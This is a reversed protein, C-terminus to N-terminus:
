WYHRHHHRHHRHHWRHWSRHHCIRRPGYHTLVIRCRRYPYYYDSPYYSGYYYPRYFHRHHHHAFRYGGFHHGGYRYGGGGVHHFAPASRFGGGGFHMGGGHGGGGGFHMGGGGHGGGGFHAGGGGHGGGGRGGGGGHGHVQTTLGESVQKAVDASGANILSMAQAPKNAATSVVFLAAVALGLHILGRKSLGRRSDLIRIMRSDGQICVRFGPGVLPGRGVHENTIAEFSALSSLTFAVHIHAEDHQLLPVNGRGMEPSPVAASMTAAIEDSFKGVLVVRMDGIQLEHVKGREHFATPTIVL